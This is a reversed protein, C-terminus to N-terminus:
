RLGDWSALESSPVTIDGVIKATGRMAGLWTPDVAPPAPPQLPSPFPAIPVQETAGTLAAAVLLSILRIM